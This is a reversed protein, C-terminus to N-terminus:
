EEKKNKRPFEFEDDLPADFDLVEHEVEDNQTVWSEYEPTELISPHDGKAPFAEHLVVEPLDVFPIVQIPDRKSMTVDSIFRPIVVANFARELFRAMAAFESKREPHARGMLMLAHENMDQVPFIGGVTNRLGGKRVGAVFAQLDHVEQPALAMLSYPAVNDKSAMRTLEKVDSAKDGGVRELDFVLQEIIAAEIRDREEVSMQEIGPIVLLISPMNSLLAQMCETERAPPTPNFRPEAERSGSGKRPLEHDLTARRPRTKSRVNM